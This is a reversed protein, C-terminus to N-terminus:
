GLLYDLAALRGSGFFGANRLRQRQPQLRRLAPVVLRGTLSRLLPDESERLLHVPAVADASSLLACLEDAAAEAQEHNTVKEYVEAMRVYMEGLTRLRAQTQELNSDELPFLNFLSECPLWEVVARLEAASLPMCEVFLRIALSDVGYARVVEELAHQQDHFKRGSLSEAAELQLLRVFPEPAKLKEASAASEASNERTLRRRDERLRLNRELLVQKIAARAASREEAPLQQVEEESPVRPLWSEEAKAPAASPEQGLAPLAALALIIWRWSM